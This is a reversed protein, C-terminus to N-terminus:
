SNGAHFLVKLVTFRRQIYHSFSEPSFLIRLRRGKEKRDKGGKGLGATPQVRGQQQPPCRARCRSHGPLAPHRAPCRQETPTPRRTPAGATQGPAPGHGPTRKGAARGESRESCPISLPRRGPTLLLAPHRLDAAAYSTHVSLLKVHAAAQRALHPHV